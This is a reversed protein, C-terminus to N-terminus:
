VICHRHYSVSSPFPGQRITTNTRFKSPPVSSFWPFVWDPCGINRYIDSGLTVATRVRAQARNTHWGERYEADLLWFAPALSPSTFPHSGAMWIFEVLCYDITNALSCRANDLLFHVTPARSIHTYGIPYQSLSVALSGLGRLITYMKILFGAACGTWAESSRAGVDESLVARSWSLGM